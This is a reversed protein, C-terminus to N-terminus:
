LPLLLKRAGERAIADLGDPFERGVGEEAVIRVVVAYEKGGANARRGKHKGVQSPVGRGELFRPDV